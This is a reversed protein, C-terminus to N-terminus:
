LKSREGLKCFWKFLFSIHQQLKSREGNKEYEYKKSNRTEVKLLYNWKWYAIQFCILHITVFKSWEGIKEEDRYKCTNTSKQNEENWCITNKQKTKKEGSWFFSVVNQEMYNHYKQKLDNESMSMLLYKDNMIRSPLRGM